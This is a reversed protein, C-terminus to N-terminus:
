VWEFGPTIDFTDPALGLTEDLVKPTWLQDRVIVGDESIGVRAITGNGLSRGDQVVDGIAPISLKGLLKVLPVSAEALPMFLAELVEPKPGKGKEICAAAVNEKAMESAESTAAHEGALEQRGVLNVAGTLARMQRLLGHHGVLAINSRDRLSSVADEARRSADLYSEGDGWGNPVVWGAYKAVLESDMGKFNGLAKSFISVTQARQANAAGTLLRAFQLKGHNIEHFNPLVTKESLGYATAALEATQTTRALPSHHIELIEVGLNRLLWGAARGQREGIEVLSVQGNEKGDPSGGYFIGKGNHISKGHRIHYQVASCEEISRAM